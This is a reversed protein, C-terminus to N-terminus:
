EFGDRTLSPSVTVVAPEGGHAPLAIAAVRFEVSFGPARILMSAGVMEASPVPTCVFLAICVILNM